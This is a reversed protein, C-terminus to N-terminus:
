EGVERGALLRMLGGLLACSSLFSAFPSSLSGGPVVRDFCNPEQHPQPQIEMCRVKVVVAVIM